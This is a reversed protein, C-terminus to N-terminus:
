AWWWRTFFVNLTTNITIARLNKGGYEITVSDMDCTVLRVVLQGNTIECARLNCGNVRSENSARLDEALWRSYVQFLDFQPFDLNNLPQAVAGCNSQGTESRRPHGKKGYKRETVSRRRVEWTIARGGGWWVDAAKALRLSLSKACIPVIFNLTHRAHFHVDVDSPLSLGGWIRQLNRAVFM